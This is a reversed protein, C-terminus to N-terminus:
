INTFIPSDYLNFTGVAFAVVEGTSVETAQGTIVLLSRGASQLSTTTEITQGHQVPRLFNVKMEVTSTLMKRELAYKLAELGLASDLLAMVSGGHAVNPAGTHKQDITMTCSLPADHSKLTIDLTPVLGGQTHLLEIIETLQM